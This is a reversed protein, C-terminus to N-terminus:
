LPLALIRPSTPINQRRQHKSSQHISKSARRTRSYSAVNPLSTPAPHPTKTPSDPKIQSTAQTTKAIKTIQPLYLGQLHLHHWNNSSLCTASIEAITQILQNRNNSDFSISIYTVSNKNSKIKTKAIHRSVSSQLYQRICQIYLNDFNRKYNELTQRKLITKYEISSM